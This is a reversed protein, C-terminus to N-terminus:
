VRLGRWSCLWEHGRGGGRKWGPKGAHPSAVPDLSGARATIEELNMVHLRRKSEGVHTHRAVPRRERVRLRECIQRVGLQHHECPLAAERSVRRELAVDGRPVVLDVELRRVRGGISASELVDIIGVHALMREVARIDLRPLRRTAAVALVERKTFRALATHSAHKEDGAIVEEEHSVAHPIQRYRRRDVREHARRLCRARLDNPKDVALERIAAHAASRGRPRDLARRNRPPLSALELEYVLETYGAAAAHTPAIRM